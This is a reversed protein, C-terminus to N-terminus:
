AFYTGISTSCLNVKIICDLVYYYLIISYSEMHLYAKVWCAYLTLSHLGHVSLCSQGHHRVILHETNNDFGM